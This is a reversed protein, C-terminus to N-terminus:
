RSDATPNLNLSVYPFYEEGPVAEEPEQGGESDPVLQTLAERIKRLSTSSGKTPKILAAM